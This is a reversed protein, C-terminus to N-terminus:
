TPLSKVDKTERLTYDFVHRFICSTPCVGAWVVTGCPLEKISKDPMQLVVSNPKVEKVMTKTKIDIKSERFTSETYDILQKSFM